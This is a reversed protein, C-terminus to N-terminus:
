APHRRATRRGVKQRPAPRIAEISDRSVSRRCPRRGQWGYGINRLAAQIRSVSENIAAEALGVLKLEGIKGSAVDAEM